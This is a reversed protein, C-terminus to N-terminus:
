PVQLTCKMYFNSSISAKKQWNELTRILLSKLRLYVNDFMNQVKENYREYFNIETELLGQFRAYNAPGSESRLVKAIWDYDKSRGRILANVQVNLREELLAAKSECASIALSNLTVRNTGQFFFIYKHFVYM